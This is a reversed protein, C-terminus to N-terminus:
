SRGIVCRHLSNGIRANPERVYTVSYTVHNTFRGFAKGRGKSGCQEAIEPVVRISSSEVEMGQKGRAVLQQFRIQLQLGLDHALQKM